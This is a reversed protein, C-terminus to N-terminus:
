KSGFVVHGSSQESDYPAPPAVETLEESITSTEVKDTQNSPTLGLWNSLLSIGEEASDNVAALIDAASFGALTEPGEETTTDTSASSTPSKDVEENPQQEKIVEQSSEIVTMGNPGM